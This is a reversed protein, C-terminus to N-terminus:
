PKNSIKVGMIGNVGGSHQQRQQMLGIRCIMIMVARPNKEYVVM